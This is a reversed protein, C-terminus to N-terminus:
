LGEMLEKLGCTCPIEHTKGCTPQSCEFERYTCGKKHRMYPKAEELLSRAFARIKAVAGQNVEYEGGYGQDDGGDWIHLGLDHALNEIRRELTEGEAAM